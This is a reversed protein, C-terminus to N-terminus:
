HASPGHAPRRGVLSDSLTGALADDGRRNTHNLDAFFASDLGRFLDIFSFGGALLERVLYDHSSTLVQETPVKKDSYEHILADNLPTLVFVPRIGRESLIEELSRVWSFPVVRDVSGAALTAELARFRNLAFDGDIDWTRSRTAAYDEPGGKLRAIVYRLVWEQNRILFSHRALEFTLRGELRQLWGESAHRDDVLLRLQAGYHSATPLSTWHPVFIRTPIIDIFATTGSPWLAAVRKAVLMMDMPTAANLAAPFAKKGSRASIREWLTEAPADVFFSCFESDGILVVPSGDFRSDWLIRERPDQSARWTADNELLSAALLDSAVVALSLGLCAACLRWLAELSGDPTLRPGTRM